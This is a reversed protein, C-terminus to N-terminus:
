LNYKSVFKRIEEDPMQDLVERIRDELNELVIDSIPYGLFDEIEMVNDTSIADVLKDELNPGAHMNKGCWPCFSFKKIAPLGKYWTGGIRGCASCINNALGPEPYTKEDEIWHNHM